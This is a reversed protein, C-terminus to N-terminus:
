LVQLWNELRLMREKHVEARENNEAEVYKELQRAWLPSTQALLMLDDKMTPWHIEEDASEVEPISWSDSPLTDDADNPAASRGGCHVLSEFRMGVRENGNTNREGEQKDRRATDAGGNDGPGSDSRRSTALANRYTDIQWFELTNMM